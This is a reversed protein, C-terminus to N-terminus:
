IRGKGRVAALHVFHAMAHATGIGAQRTAVYINFCDGLTGQVEFVLQGNERGSLRLWAARSAFDDSGSPRTERLLSKGGPIWKPIRSQPSPINVLLPLESPAAFLGFETASAADHALMVDAVISRVGDLRVNRIVAVHSGRDVPHLFLGSQENTYYLLDSRPEPLGGFYVARELAGDMVIETPREISVDGDAVRGWSDFALRLGPVGAYIRIALSRGDVSGNSYICRLRPDATIEGLSFGVGTAPEHPWQVEIRVSQDLAHPMYPCDFRNWGPDLTAARLTWTALLDHSHEASLHVVLTADSSRDTESVHLEFAHVARFERKSSQVISTIEFLDALRASATGPPLFVGVRPPPPPTMQSVLRQAEQIAEFHDYAMQQLRGIELHGASLDALFRTSLGFARNLQWELLEVSGSTMDYIADTGSIQPAIQRLRAVARPFGEIFDSDLIAGVLPRALFGEGPVTAIGSIEFGQLGSIERESMIVYHTSMGASPLQKQLRDLIIFAYPPQSTEVEHATGDASGMSATSNEIQM